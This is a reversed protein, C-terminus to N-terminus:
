ACAGTRRTHAKIPAALDVLVGVPPRLKAPVTVEVAPTRHLTTIVPDTSQDDVYQEPTFWDVGNTRSCYSTRTYGDPRGVGCRVVIGDAFVAAYPRGSLPQRAHGDLSDLSDILARCAAQQGTPVSFDPVSPQDSSGCGSLGALGALM